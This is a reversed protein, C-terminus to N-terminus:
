KVNASVLNRRERRARTWKIAKTMLSNRHPDGHHFLLTARLSDSRCGLNAHLTRYGWFLYINGPKLRVINSDDRRNAIRRSWYIRAIPNQICLKDLFNLLSSGRIPRRNPYTILDGSEEPTGTPIELPILVTVVSADYHFQLSHDGGRPGAIVRLVNYIDSHDQHGPHGRSTLGTLLQKFNDDRALAEYESGPQQWPQIISFYRLGQAKINRQLEQRWRALSEPKVAREICVVGDKDIRRAIEDLYEPTFNIDLESSM